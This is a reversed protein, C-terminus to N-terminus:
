WLDVRIPRLWGNERGYQGWCHESGSVESETLHVSGDPPRAILSNSCEFAKVRWRREGIEERIKPLGAKVTRGDCQYDRPGFIEVREYIGVTRYHGLGGTDLMFRDRLSDIGPQTLLLGDNAAYLCSQCPLGIRDNLMRVRAYSNIHAATSVLAHRALGHDSLIQCCNGIGRLSVPGGTMSDVGVWSSWADNVPYRNTNKWYRERQAFKGGLSNLLVKCVERRVHNGTQEANRKREWWYDVWSDFISHKHYLVVASVGRLHNSQLAMQVEPTCLTTWFRGIPYRTGEPFRVPYWDNETDIQCTAVCLYNELQESLWELSPPQWIIPRGASDSIAEVPYCNGHMVSPYLSNIDVHYIPGNPRSAGPRFDPETYGFLGGWGGGVDGVYYPQTRGDYYSDREFQSADKDGHCVIARSMFRHRYASYALSAITPQWNGLDNTRWERMLGTIAREIVEVDRLCYTYWDKEGEDNAPMPLKNFGISEGIAAVSGRFYNYSDIFNIRRGRYIGKIITAGKDLSCQGLFKKRSETGKRGMRRKDDTSVTLKFQGNEVLEPFQLVWLDFLINHAYVWTPRKPKAHEAIAEWFAHPRSLYYTQVGNFASGDWSGIRLCGLRFYLCSVRPDTAHPLEMTETDVFAITSPQECKHNVKWRYVM